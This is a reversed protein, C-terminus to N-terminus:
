TPLRPVIALFKATQIASRNRLVYVVEPPVLFESGISLCQSHGQEKITFEVEGDEGEVIIYLMAQSNQNVESMEAGPDLSM